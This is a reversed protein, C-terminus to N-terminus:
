KRVISYKKLLKDFADKAANKTAQNLSKLQKCKKKSIIKFESLFEDIFTSADDSFPENTATTKEEKKEQEEMPVIQKISEEEKILANIDDINQMSFSCSKDNIIIVLTTDDNHMGTKRWDQVLNEFDEHSVVTLLQQIFEAIEGKQNHRSLFESIPDSTMILCIDESLVGEIIRPTGKGKQSEDSDFYDPYSDFTEVDQSTHFKAENGNWEILCSDGLVSGKWKNGEFRIGVFTAGASRREALNRENRYIMNEPANKAKLDQIFDNVKERWVSCLPKISEIDPLWDTKEIFSDVLLQAWIKQQWTAGMGDSVAISKIEPNIGFRDQCDSYTEAQKHTIFASIKM